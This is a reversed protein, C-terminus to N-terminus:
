FTRWNWRVLRSQGHFMQKSSIYGPIMLVSFVIKAVRTIEASRPETQTCIQFSAYFVNMSIFYLGARHLQKPTWILAARCEPLLISALIVEHSM